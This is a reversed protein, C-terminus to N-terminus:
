LDWWYNKLLDTLENVCAFMYIEYRFDAENKIDQLAKRKNSLDKYEDSNEDKITKYKANIDLWPDIYKEMETTLVNPEHSSLEKLLFSIKKIITKWEKLADKEIRINWDAKPHPFLGNNKYIESPCTVAIDAMEHLLVSIELLKKNIEERKNQYEKHNEDM